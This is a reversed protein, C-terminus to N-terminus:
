QVHVTVIWQHVPIREVFYGSPIKKDCISRKQLKMISLGMRKECCFSSNHPLLIISWIGGGIIERFRGGEPVGPVAYWCLQVRIARLKLIETLTRSVSSNEKLLLYLNSEVPAWWLMQSSRPILLWGFLCQRVGCIEKGVDVALARKTPRADEMSVFARRNGSRERYSDVVNEYDTEM